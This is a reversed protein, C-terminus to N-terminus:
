RKWHVHKSLILIKKNNGVLMGKEVNKMILTDAAIISNDEIFAGKLIMANAAIWVHDGIKVDAAVVSQQGGCEISHFDSDYIVVNRAIMVDHGLEIRKGIVMTSFSNMTFFKTELHADALVEITSGYSIECRETANWVAGGRLRLFTEAKSGRLKNVGISIDGDYIHIQANRDVDIVANKYPLIKGNGHRIISKCFYNLYVYLFINLNKFFKRM